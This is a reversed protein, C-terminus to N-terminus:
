KLSLIKSRIGRYNATVSDLWKVFELITMNNKARNCYKCCTVCNDLMYGVDNNIRDIGNFLYENRGAKLTRVKVAVPESLCYYCKKKLFSRFDDEALSFKIGRKRAAVKYSNFIEHPAVKDYPKTHSNSIWIGKKCGCSRIKGATLLYGAVTKIVGCECQVGWYAYEDKDLDTRELVKLVGFKKGKLDKVLLSCKRDRCTKTKGNLVDYQYVLKEKGCDCRVLVKRDPLGVELVVLKAFRRGTLDPFKKRM